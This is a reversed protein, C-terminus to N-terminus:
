SYDKECKYYNICECQCTKNNQKQDSSCTTSSFEYKCYCLIHETM